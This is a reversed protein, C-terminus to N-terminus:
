PLVGLGKERSGVGSTYSFIKEDRCFQVPLPVIFSKFLFPAERPEHSAVPSEQVYLRIDDRM